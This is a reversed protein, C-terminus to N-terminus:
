LYGYVRYLPLYVVLGTVSVYAWIPFTRAALRAHELIRTVYNVLALMDGVQARDM